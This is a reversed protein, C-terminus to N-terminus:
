LVLGAVAQNTIQDLFKISETAGELDNIKAGYELTERVIIKMIVRMKGRCRPLIMGNKKVVDAICFLFDLKVEDDALFYFLYNYKKFIVRVCDCKAQDLYIEKKTEREDTFSIHLCHHYQEKGESLKQILSLIENYYKRKLDKEEVEFYIINEKNEVRFM